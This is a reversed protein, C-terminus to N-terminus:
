NYPPARSFFTSVLTPPIDSAADEEEFPFEKNASNATLVACENKEINLVTETQTLAISHGCTV